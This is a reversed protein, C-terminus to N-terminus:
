RHVGRKRDKGGVVVSASRHTGFRKRELLRRDNQSKEADQQQEDQDDGVGHRSVRQDPRLADEQSADAMVDRARVAM